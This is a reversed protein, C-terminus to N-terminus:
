SESDDRHPPKSMAERNFNTAAIDHILAVTGVAFLISALFAVFLLNLWRLKPTSSVLQPPLSVFTEKFSGLSFEMEALIRAQVDALTGGQAVELDLKAREVALDAIAKSAIQMQPSAASGDKSRQSLGTGGKPEAPGAAAPLKALANFDALRTDVRDIAKALEDTEQRFKDAAAKALDRRLLIRERVSQAKAAVDKLVRDTINQQFDKARNVAAPDVTSTIVVSRGVSDATSGMLAAALTAPISDDGIASLAASAYLALIRKAVIEPPEFFQERADLFVSGIDISSRVTATPKVFFFIAAALGLFAVTAVGFFIRGYFWIIRMGPATITVAM